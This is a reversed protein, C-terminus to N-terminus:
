GQLKRRLGGTVGDDVYTSNIIKDAAVPNIERGEEATLDRGIELFNGAPCDGFAVCDFAFELWPGDPSFRWIIRRLHRELLGTKLQNYAKTLDYM